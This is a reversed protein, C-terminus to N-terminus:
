FQSMKSIDGAEDSVAKLTKSIGDENKTLYGCIYKAYAYQDVVLQVDHNAGHILMLNPNFNNTFIDKPERKIFVSGTGKISVELANLYRIKAKKIDEESYEEFSKKENLMGVEALFKNFSMSKLKGM